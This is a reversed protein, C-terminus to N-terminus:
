VAPYTTTATSVPARAEVAAVAGSVERTTSHDNRSQPTRPAGAIAIPEPRAAIQVAVRGADTTAVAAAQRRTSPM